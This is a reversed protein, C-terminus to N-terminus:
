CLVHYAARGSAGVLKSLASTDASDRRACAGVIVPDCTAGLGLHQTQSCSWPMSARGSGSASQRTSYVNIMDRSSLVALDRTVPQEGEPPPGAVAATHQEASCLWAPNHNKGLMWWLPDALLADAPLVSLLQYAASRVPAVFPQLKPREITQRFHQASQELPKPSAQHTEDTCAVRCWRGPLRGLQSTRPCRQVCCEATLHQRQCRQFQQGKKSLLNTSPVMCILSCSHYHRHICCVSSVCTHTPM